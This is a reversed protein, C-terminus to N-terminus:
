KTETGNEQNLGKIFKLIKEYVLSDPLMIIRIIPFSDPRFEIDISQVPKNELNLIKLIEKNIGDGNYMVM